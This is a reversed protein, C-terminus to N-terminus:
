PALGGILDDGEHAAHDARRLVREAFSEGVNVDEHLGLLVVRQYVQEAVPEAYVGFAAYPWSDAM